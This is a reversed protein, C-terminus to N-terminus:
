IPWKCSTSWGSPHCLLYGHQWHVVRTQHIVWTLFNSTHCLQNAYPILTKLPIVQIVFIFVPWSCVDGGGPGLACLSYFFVSLCKSPSAPKFSLLVFCFLLVTSLNPYLLHISLFATTCICLPTNSLWLFSNMQILEFWRMQHSPHFQLRNYLTFYALFFFM